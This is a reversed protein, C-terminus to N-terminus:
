LSFDTMNFCVVSGLPLSIDTATTHKLICM